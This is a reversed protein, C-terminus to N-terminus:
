FVLVQDAREKDKGALDPRSISSVFLTDDTLAFRGEDGAVLIWRWPM